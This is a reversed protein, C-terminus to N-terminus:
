LNIYKEFEDENFHIFSRNEKDMRARFEEEGNFSHISENLFISSGRNPNEIVRNENNIM